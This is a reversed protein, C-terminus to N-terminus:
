KIRMISRQYADSVRRIRMQYEESVGRISMQYAHYEDSVRRIRM